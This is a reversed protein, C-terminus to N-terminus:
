QIDLCNQVEQVYLQVVVVVYIIIKFDGPNQSPNINIYITKINGIATLDEPTMRTITQLDYGASVFLTYYESFRFIM